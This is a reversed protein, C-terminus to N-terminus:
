SPGVIPFNHYDNNYVKTWMVNWKGTRSDAPCKDKERHCGIAAETDQSGMHSEIMLVVLNGNGLIPTGWIMWTLLGHSLIAVYPKQIHKPPIGEWKLFNGIERIPKQIRHQAGSLLPWVDAQFARDQVKAIEGLELAVFAIDLRCPVSFFLIRYLSLDLYICLYVYISMSLCLYVYVSLCLYVSISMSMSLCLCLYVYISLYISM